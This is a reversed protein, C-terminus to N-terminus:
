SPANPDIPAARRESLVAWLATGVVIVSGALTWAGPVEGFMLFGAAIAMPLRVYDIPALRAADGISMAHIYTASTVVSVTGLACLLLFDGLDPMRWGDVTVPLLFLAGLIGSWVMITAVSNHRTLAKIGTVSLALFFAASVAALHVLGLAAGPSPRAILLVGAFGIVLAIWTGAAIRDRLILMALPGIWLTRTFSIANADALPLQQVAYYSLSVGLAASLSRGLMMWTGNLVLVRGRTRIVLPLMLVLGALQSYMAQMPAPYNNLSKILVTMATFCLSSIVLWIAGRTNSPLRAFAAKLGGRGDAWRM